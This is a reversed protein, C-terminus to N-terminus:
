HITNRCLPQLQERPEGQPESRPHSVTPQQCVFEVANFSVQHAPHLSLFGNIM